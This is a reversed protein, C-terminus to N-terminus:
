TRGKAIIFIEDEIVRRNMKRFIFVKNGLTDEGIGAYQWEEPNCGRKSLEKRQSRTLSKLRKM